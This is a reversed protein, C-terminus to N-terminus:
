KTIKRKLMINGAQTKGVEIFGCSSYFKTLHSSRPDHTVSFYSYKKPYVNKLAMEVLKTGIGNDRFKDRVYLGLLFVSNPFYKHKDDFFECCIYGIVEDEVKALWVLDNKLALRIESNIAEWKKSFDDEYLLAHLTIADHEDESTAKFYKVEGM